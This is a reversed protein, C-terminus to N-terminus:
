LVQKALHHLLQRRSCQLHCLDFGHLPFAVCGQLDATTCFTVFLQMAPLKPVVPSCADVVLTLYPEQMCPHLGQANRANSSVWPLQQLLQIPCAWYGTSCHAVQNRPTLRGATYSALQGEWCLLLENM